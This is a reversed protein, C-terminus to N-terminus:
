GRKCLCTYVFIIARVRLTAFYSTVILSIILCQSSNMEQLYGYFHLYKKAKNREM